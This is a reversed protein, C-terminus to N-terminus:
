RAAITGLKDLSHNLNNLIPQYPPSTLIDTLSNAYDITQVSPLLAISRGETSIGKKGPQKDSCLRM